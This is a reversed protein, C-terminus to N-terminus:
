ISLQLDKCKTKHSKWDSIQCEKSCYKRNPNNTIYTIGCLNCKKEKIKKIKKESIIVVEKPYRCENCCFKGKSDKTIWYENKCRNCMRVRYRRAQGGKDRKVLIEKVGVPSPLTTVYKYKQLHHKLHEGNSAFLKLNEIRNDLTDGNIHHVVENSTLYRGILKEMVIRHEPVYFGRTKRRMPHTEARVHRYGSSVRTGGNWRPSDKGFSVGKEWKGNKNRKMTNRRIDIIDCYLSQGLLKNM